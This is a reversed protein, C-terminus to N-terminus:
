VQLPSGPEILVVVASLLLKRVLEEVEWWWATPGYVEYLFGFTERTEVIHPDNPDGFLQRRRRYLIVFVAIPLGAVYLAGIVIAYFAFRGPSFGVCGVRIALGPAGVIVLPYRLVGRLSSLASTMSGPRGGQASVAVCGAWQSNYCELRMDAALWYQGEIYNCRFLRMIKLAVGSAAVM